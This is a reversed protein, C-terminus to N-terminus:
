REVAGRRASRRPMLPDEVHALYADRDDTHAVAGRGEHLANVEVAIGLAGVENRAQHVDVEAAVVRAVDLEGGGEVHLACL